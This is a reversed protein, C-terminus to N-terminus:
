QTRQVERVSQKFNVLTLRWARTRTIDVAIGLNCGERVEIFGDEGGCVSIM